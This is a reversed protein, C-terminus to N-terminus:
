VNESRENVDKRKKKLLNLPKHFMELHILLNKQVGKPKSKKIFDDFYVPVKDPSLQQRLFNEVFKNQTDSAGGEQSTLIAFLQMLAKLIEESM